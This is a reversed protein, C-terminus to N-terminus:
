NKKFPLLHEYLRFNGKFLKLDAFQEADNRTKAM